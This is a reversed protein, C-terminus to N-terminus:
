GNAPEWADGPKADNSASLDPANKSSLNGVVRLKHRTVRSTREVFRAYSEEIPDSLLELIATGAAITGTALVVADGQNFRCAMPFAVGFVQSEGLHVAGLYLGDQDDLEIEHTQEITFTAEGGSMLASTRSIDQAQAHVTSLRLLEDSAGAQTRLELLLELLRIYGRYKSKSTGLGLTGSLAERGDLLALKMGASGGMIIESARLGQLWEAASRLDNSAFQESFDCKGESAVSVVMRGMPWTIVMKRGGDEFLDLPPLLVSCPFSVRNSERLDILTLISNQSQQPTITVTGEGLAPHIPLDIDFRRELLEVTVGTLPALGLLGDVVDEVATPGIRLVGHVQSEGLTRVLHGKQKAYDEMTTPVCGSLAAVLAAPNLNVRNTRGATFSIDLQNLPKPNTTAGRLRKLVRGLVVDTMHILHLGVFHDNDDIRLVCILAPRLDRALREAVSLTLDVSRTAAKITKVQVAFQKPADRREFSKGFVLPLPRFEVIFDKGTRDPEVKSCNIKALECLRQFEIEGLRGIRDNELGDPPPL